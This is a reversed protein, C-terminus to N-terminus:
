ERVRDALLGPTFPKSLFVGDKLDIGSFSSERSYGSMYLVSIDPHAAVIRAALESGNMQPMIFDTMLLKISGPYREALVLAAEPEASELVKYGLGTLLDRVLQRVSEDDEVLLITESGRVPREVEAGQNLPLAKQVAPLLIEVQTGAGVHSTLFIDGGNQY